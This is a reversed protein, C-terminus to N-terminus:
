SNNRIIAALAANIADITDKVAGMQNNMKLMSMQISQQRAANNPELLKAQMTAMQEAMTSYRGPLAAKLGAYSTDAPHAPRWGKATAPPKERAPMATAAPASVLVVFGALVAALLRRM